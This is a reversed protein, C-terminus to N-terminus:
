IPEKFRNLPRPLYRIRVGQEFVFTTFFYQLVFFGIVILPGKIGGASDLLALISIGAAGVSITITPLGISHRTLPARVNPFFAIAKAGKITGVLGVSPARQNTHTVLIVAGDHKDLFEFTIEHVRSNGHVCSTRFRIAERSIQLVTVDLIQSGEPVKLHLHDTDAVDHGHITESGKNWLAIKTLTLSRIQQNNFLVRLNPIKNEYNEVFNASKSTYVLQKFRRNKFYFYIALALGILSVPNAIAHSVFWTWVQSFTM